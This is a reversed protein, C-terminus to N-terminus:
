RVSHRALSPASPRAIPQIFRDLHTRRDVFVLELGIQAVYVDALSLASAQLAAAIPEVFAFILIAIEHLRSHEDVDIALHADRLLFYEPRHNRDDSAVIEFVGDLDRVADVVSQRRREVGFVHVFSEDAM